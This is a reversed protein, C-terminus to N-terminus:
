AFLENGLLGVIEERRIRLQEALDNQEELIAMPMREREISELEAQLDIKSLM